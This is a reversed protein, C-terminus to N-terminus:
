KWLYLLERWVDERRKVGTVERRPSLSSLSEGHSSPVTHLPAAPTPKTENGNLM